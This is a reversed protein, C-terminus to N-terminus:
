PEAGDRVRSVGREFDYGFLSIDESYVDGVIRATEDSYWTRYDPSRSRTRNVVKPSAEIGLRNAVIRFDEDFREFRGIFDVGIRRREVCVFEFQPLFHLGCYISKKTLWGKVFSEFNTFPALHKAAWQQDYSNLGGRALFAYASVLRDWPNRVFAFKFYSDLEDRSYLAEFDDIFLHSGAHNGFLSEAVALGGTKPIHIFICRHRDLPQLGYIGSTAVRLRRIEWWRLVFLKTFRRRSEYPMRWYYPDIRHQIAKRINTLASM